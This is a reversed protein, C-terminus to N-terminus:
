GLPMALIERVRLDFFTTSYSPRILVATDVGRGTGAVAIIEESPSVLGADAAMVSIEVAVKMGQGLLYLTQGIIEAPALGGFRERIASEVNGILAHTATVVEGGLSRIEEMKNWDPPSYKAWRGAHLTVAIVQIDTGKLARALALASDGIEAAVVVKKIGMAIAYEQVIRLTDATNQPGPEDFYRVTRDVM